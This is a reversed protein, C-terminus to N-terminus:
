DAPADPDSDADGFWSHHWAAEAAGIQLQHSRRQYSRMLNALQAHCEHIQKRLHMVQRDAFEIEALRLCIVHVPVISTTDFTNDFSHPADKEVLVSLINPHKANSEGTEEVKAAAELVQRPVQQPIVRAQQLLHNLKKSLSPLTHGIAEETTQQWAILQSPKTMQDVPQLQRLLDIVSNSITRRLSKQLGQQHNPELALFEAPYYHTCIHYCAHIGHHRIAQALSTLYHRYLQYIEQGLQQTRSTLNAMERDVQASTQHAATTHPEGM